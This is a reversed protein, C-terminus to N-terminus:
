PVGELFFSLFFPAREQDFLKGRAGRLESKPLDVSLPDQPFWFRAHTLILGVPGCTTTWNEM